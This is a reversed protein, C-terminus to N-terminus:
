KVNKRAYELRQIVTVHSLIGVVILAINLSQEHFYMGIVGIIFLGLKEQREAIGVTCSKLGGISEAKGRVFSAMLMGFLSFFSIRWDVFNGLTVGLIIFFEAYRDVTHDFVGGFRTIRDTVRAVAGDVMDLFAMAFIFVLGLLIDREYFFYCSAVSALLSFFTFGNPSIGTKAFLGGIGRTNEEYWCRLFGFL